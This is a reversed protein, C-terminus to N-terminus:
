WELVVRILQEGPEEFDEYPKYRFDSNTYVFTISGVGFTYDLTSTWKEPGDARHRVRPLINQVNGEERVYAIVNGTNFISITLEPFYKTCTYFVEGSNGVVRTWENARATFEYSQKRSTELSECSVAFVAITLLLLLKRM